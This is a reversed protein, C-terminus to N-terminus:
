RIAGKKFASQPRIPHGASRVRQGHTPDITELTMCAPRTQKTVPLVVVLIGNGYTVNALEGDVCVPLALARYYDGARWENLLQEKIGKLEGRLQGRLILCPEQTVEVRIDRPEVGPMPAAITLRDATRYVKLPICQSTAQDVM